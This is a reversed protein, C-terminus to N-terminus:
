VGLALAETVCFMSLQAGDPGVKFVVVPNITTLNSAIVSV